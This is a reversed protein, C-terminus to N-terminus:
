ALEVRLPVCLVVKKLILMSHLTECLEAVCDELAKKAEVSGVGGQVGLHGHVHHLYARSLLPLTLHFGAKHDM